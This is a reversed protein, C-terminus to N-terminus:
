CVQIQQQQPLNNLGKFFASDGIYKRLMHLIRGGKQYSVGDFMQERDEYYFRVLDKKSNDGMLYGQLGSFNEADGADKGYKNNM